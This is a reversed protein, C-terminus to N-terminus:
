RPLPGERSAIPGSDGKRGHSGEAEADRGGGGPMEPEASRRVAFWYETTDSQPRRDVIVLGAEELLQRCRDATVGRTVELIVRKAQRLTGAGGELVADEAGEVDILLWDAGPPDQELEDLPLQPVLIREMGLGPAPKARGPLLSSTGDYVAPVELSATAHDRGLAVNVCRVNSFRNGDVNQRLARFTAPNPEIAVVEAGRAAALLTFYGIHAGADVVREGRRPRFWASTAPKHGPRLFHLDESRPRVWALFEDCRLQVPTRGGLDLGVGRFARPDSLYRLAARAYCTGLRRADALTAPRLHLFELALSGRPPLSV